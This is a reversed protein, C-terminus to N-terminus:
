RSIRSSFFGSGFENLNNASKCGKHNYLQSSLRQQSGPLPWEGINVAMRPLEGPPGELM